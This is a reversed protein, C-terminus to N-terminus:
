RVEKWGPAQQYNLEMQFHREELKERSLISV